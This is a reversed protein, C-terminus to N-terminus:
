FKELANNSHKDVEPNINKTKKRVCISRLFFQRGYPLPMNFNEQETKTSFEAVEHKPIATFEKLMLKLKSVWLCSAKLGDSVVAQFCPQGKINPYSSM